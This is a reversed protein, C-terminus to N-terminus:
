SSGLLAATSPTSELKALLNRMTALSDDGKVSQLFREVMAAEEADFLQDKARTFSAEPDIAPYVGRDALHRSLRIEATATGRFEDLILEDVPSGTEATVTAIMTLSGGEELARAAGFFRKSPYIASADVGGGLLRGGAPAILNYARVLATLGDVLVVVDEGEEVMRKAREIAMEAVAVQEEPPRDFGSAIVEGGDLRRSAATIEEPREDLLMVILRADAHNAEISVAIDSLL